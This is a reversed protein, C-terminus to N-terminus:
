FLYALGLDNHNNLRIGRNLYDTRVQGSEFSLMVNPALRYMLNAAYSMNRAVGYLIDRNRNDQLGGFLNFSLRPTVILSLQTWGGEAHVPIVYYEDSQKVITIGQGIGGLNALNEGRFFAGSFELKRWPNAFWDLAFVRSPV